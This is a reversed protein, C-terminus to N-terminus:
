PARTQVRSLALEAAESVSHVGPSERLVEVVARGLEVDELTFVRTPSNLIVEMQPRVVGRKEWKALTSAHIGVLECYVRRTIASDFQEKVVASGKQSGALQRKKAESSM